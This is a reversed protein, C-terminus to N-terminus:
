GLPESFVEATFLFLITDPEHWADKPLGAKLCTHNLFTDRDWGQETAVQPLLLGSRYGREVMVGHIGVVVDEPNFTRQMPSLVSIEIQLSDVEKARVPRFRPDHLAASEAMEVITEILPKVAHVYGICGRLDGHSHLTVFAGCKGLLGPSSTEPIVPNQGSTVLEITRRALHLLQNKEEDSVIKSPPVDMM